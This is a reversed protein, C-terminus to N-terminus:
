APTLTFVDSGSLRVSTTVELEKDCTNKRAIDNKGELKGNM